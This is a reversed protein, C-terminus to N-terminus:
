AAPAPARYSTANAGLSVSSERARHQSTMLWLMLSPPRMQHRVWSQQIHDWALAGIGLAHALAQQQAAPLAAAAWPAQLQEPGDDFAATSAEEAPQGEGLQLAAAALGNTIRRMCADCHAWLSVTAYARPMRSTTRLAVVPVALVVFCLASQYQTICLVIGSDVM